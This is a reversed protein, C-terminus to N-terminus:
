RAPKGRASVIYLRTSIFHDEWLKGMSNRFETTSMKQKAGSQAAAAPATLILAAVMLAPAITTFRNEQKKM